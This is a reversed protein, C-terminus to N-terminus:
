EDMIHQHLHQAAPSLKGVEVEILCKEPGKLVDHLQLETILIYLVLHIGSQHKLLKEAPVIILCNM